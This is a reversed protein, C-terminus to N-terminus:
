SILNSLAILRSSRQVLTRTQMFFILLLFTVDVMPTMDMEAETIRRPPTEIRRLEKPAGSQPRKGAPPTKPIEVPPPVVTPVEADIVEVADIAEVADTVELPPQKAPIKDTIEVAQL